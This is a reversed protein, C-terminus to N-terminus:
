SRGDPAFAPNIDVAPDTTLRLPTPSGILKVWIDFNDQKEGNWSFVVQNGDPSFSPSLEVGEYSTLPIVEPAAQPKGATARFLWAAVAVTVIVVAASAWFWLRRSSRVAPATGPLMGSDSEEKLEQLAVKIDAMHQFRREPDKRVCRNIVKELDPPTS